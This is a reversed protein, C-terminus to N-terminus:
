FSIIFQIFGWQFTNPVNRVSSAHHWSLPVKKKHYVSECGTCTMSYADGIYVGPWVENFPGTPRRNKLLIGLPESITPPTYHPEGRKTNDDENM